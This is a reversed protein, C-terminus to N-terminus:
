CSGWSVVQYGQNNGQVQASNSAESDDVADQAARCEGGHRSAADVGCGPDDDNSENGHDYAKTSDAHQVLVFPVRPYEGQDSNRYRGTDAALM